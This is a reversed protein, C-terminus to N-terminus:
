QSIDEKIMRKNAPDPQYFTPFDAPLVEPFVKYWEPVIFVPREKKEVFLLASLFFGEWNKANSPVPPCNVTKV